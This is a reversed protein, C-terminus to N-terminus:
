TNATQINIEAEPSLPVESLEGSLPQDDGSTVKVSPIEDDDEAVKEEQAKLLPDSQSPEKVDSPQGTSSATAAEDAGKQSMEELEKDKPDANNPDSPIPQHESSFLREKNQYACYATLPIGVVGATVGVVTLGIKWAPWGSESNGGENPIPESGNTANAMAFAKQSLYITGVAAM